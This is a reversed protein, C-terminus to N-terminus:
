PNASISASKEKITQLKSESTAKVNAAVETHQGAQKKM